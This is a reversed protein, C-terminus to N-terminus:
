LVTFINTIYDLEKGLIIYIFYANHKTYKQINVSENLIPVSKMLKM